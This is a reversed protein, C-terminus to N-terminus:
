PLERMDRREWHVELGEGASAARAAELLPESLDVGTVRHGRRALEIAIRGEGCPVDLLERSGELGLVREIFDVQGRTEAATVYARHFGLYADSRFFPEFWDATGAM